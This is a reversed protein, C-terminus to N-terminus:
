ARGKFPSKEGKFTIIKQGFNEIVTGNAAVMKLGKQAPLTTLNGKLKKPWVSVGAGSDLTIHGTQGDDFYKVEFVFTGKDEKLMMREGTIINEVYSKGPESLDLLVRNGAKCVKVASALPKAVNAVNFLMGSPRTWVKEKEEEVAAIMVGEDDEALAEFRNSSKKAGRRKRKVETFTADVNGIMWVGGIETSEGEVEEEVGQVKSAAPCENSRHGGQGCTWCSGAFSKGKGKGKEPAQGKGKGKGKDPAQGKGKGKGKDPM